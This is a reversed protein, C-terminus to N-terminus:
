GSSVIWLSCHIEVKIAEEKLFNKLKIEEPPAAHWIIDVVDGASKIQNKRELIESKNGSFISEHTYAIKLIKSSKIRAKWEKTAHLSQSHWDLGLFIIANSTPNSLYEYLGDDKEPLTDGWKAKPKFVQGLLNLTKFANVIGESVGHAHKSTAQLVVDVLQLGKRLM